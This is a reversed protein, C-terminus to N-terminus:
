LRGRGKKLAADIHAVPDFSGTGPTAVLALQRGHSRDRGPSRGCDRRAAIYQDVDARAYISRRGIRSAPLESRPIRRVFDVSCGLCRAVNEVFLWHHGLGDVDGVFRYPHRERDAEYSQRVAVGIRELVSYLGRGHERQDSM